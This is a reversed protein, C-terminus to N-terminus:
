GLNRDSRVVIYLLFILYAGIKRRGAAGGGALFWKESHKLCNHVNKTKVQFFIKRSTKKFDWSTTALKTTSSNVVSFHNNL